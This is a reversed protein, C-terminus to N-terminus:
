LNKYKFIIVNICKKTIPCDRDFEIGVSGTFLREDESISYKVNPYDKMVEMFKLLSAAHYLQIDYKTSTTAKTM